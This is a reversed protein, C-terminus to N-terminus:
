RVGARGPQPRARRSRPVTRSWPVLMKGFQAAQVSEPGERAPRCALEAVPEAFFRLRRLRVLIQHAPEDLGTMARSGDQRGRRRDLPEAGVRQDVRFALDFGADGLPDRGPKPAVKLMQEFLRDVSAHRPEDPEPLELRAAIRGVGVPQQVAALVEPAEINRFAEEVIDGRMPDRPQAPLPFAVEGVPEALERVVTAERNERDAGELPLHKEGVRHHLGVVPDRVTGSPLTESVKDCPRGRERVRDRRVRQVVHQPAVAAEPAVVGRISRVSSM